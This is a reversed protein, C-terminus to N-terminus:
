KKKATTSKAATKKKSDTKEAATKKAATKTTPASSKKAAPKTKKAETKKPAPKEAATKREVPKVAATPAKEEKKAAESPKKGAAKVDVLIQEIKVRTLEQRHGRTKKYQKRRKKKFVIVKEGKLNDVVEARVQANELSPTGILMQKEDEILLVQDFTFKEGKKLSLKEVDFVDGEQVRYQKGGTKIVAFM